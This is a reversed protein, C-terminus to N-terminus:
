VIGAIGALAGAAVLWLPNWRTRMFAVITGGTLAYGRWDHNASNVLVWGSALILGITIPALGERLARGARTDPALANWRVVALTLTASPVIMGLTAALAGFFGAVQWGILTVYMMNPGPAANGLAFSDAFQKATLWHQVEVVYRQVDPLVAGVGGVSMLSMLVFHLFLALVASETSLAVGEM